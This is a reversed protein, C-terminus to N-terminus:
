LLEVGPAAEGNAACGPVGAVGASVQPPDAAALPALECYGAVPSMLPVAAAPKVGPMVPWYKFVALLPPNVGPLVRGILSGDTGPAVAGPVCVAVRVAGGDV